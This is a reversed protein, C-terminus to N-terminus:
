DANRLCYAPFSQSVQKSCDEATTATKTGQTAAEEAGANTMLLFIALGSLYHKM